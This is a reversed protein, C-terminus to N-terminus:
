KKLKYNKVFNLGYKDIYLFAYLFMTDGRRFIHNIYKENYNKIFKEIQNREKETKSDDRISLYTNFDSDSEVIEINFKKPNHFISSHRSLLFKEISNSHIIDTNKFILDITSLAEKYTETPFDWIAFAHNWMGLKNATKLIRMRSKINIGKNMLNLIRKDASEVGWQVFIVGAKSAKKLLKDTFQDEFRAYLQIKIDLKNQLIADSLEDLYSPHVSEDIIYFFKTKYTEMYFKIEKILDDINKVSFTKGYAIDCFTCKKWYCGRNVSLPIVVEPTFYKTFDFDSYDPPKIDSLLPPVGEGNIQIKGNAKYILNHVQNIEIENNIYKALEIISNEGEAYSISDAFLEFFEPYKELNNKIRTFYTGGINIHINTEKKLLYALTLGAILQVHASISIGIFAPNKRKIEELKDKYYDLFINQNKDLIVKKIEEYSLNLFPHRIQGLEIKLPSYAITSIKIANQIINIASLLKVPNYFLNNNHTRNIAEEIINPINKIRDDINNIFTELDNYKYSLIKNEYRNENNYFSDKKNKLNKYITDIKLFSERIYDPKLIDNFFDINIDMIEVPYGSNKLQAALSPLAIHPGLLYWAPPFILLLKKM